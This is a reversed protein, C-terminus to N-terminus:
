AAIRKKDKHAPVFTLQDADADCHRPARPGYRRAVEALANTTETSLQAGPRTAIWSRPVWQLADPRFRCRKTWGALARDKPGIEGSVQANIAEAEISETPLILAHGGRQELVVAHHHAILRDGSVFQSYVLM